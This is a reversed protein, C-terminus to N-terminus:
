SEDGGRGVVCEGRRVKNWHPRLYDIVSNHTVYWCGAVKYGELEGRRILNKITDPHCGLTAAIASVKAGRPLQSIQSEDCVTAGGIAAITGGPNVSTSERNDRNALHSLRSDANEIRPLARLLPAAKQTTPLWSDLAACSQLGNSRVHYHGCKRYM